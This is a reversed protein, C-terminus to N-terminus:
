NNYRHYHFGDRDYGSDQVDLKLDSQLRYSLLTEAPVAVRNGRTLIQAGAGVAAGAVAGAAAGDGGGIVAGLIAGLVAGGGVNRATERNAGLGSDRVDVGATGVRNRTADIGYRRGNITVSDLDLVLEDESARRVVLEATAGRPIALRGDADRVDNEITGTYIRGDMTRTDIAETTRVQISTGAPIPDVFTWSQAGAASPACLMAAAAVGMVNRLVEQKFM